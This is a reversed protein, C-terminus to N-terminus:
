EYTSLEKVKHVEKTGRRLYDTGGDVYCNGCTCEVWDHRHKSEIIDNCIMCRVRNRKIKQM